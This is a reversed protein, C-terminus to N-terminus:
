EEVPLKLASEILDACGRTGKFCYFHSKRCKLGFNLSYVPLIVIPIKKRYLHILKLTNVGGRVVMLVIPIAEATKKEYKQYDILTKGKSSEHELNARFLIEKGLEHKSGDDYFLFHTHHPNLSFDQESKKPYYRVVKLFVFFVFL